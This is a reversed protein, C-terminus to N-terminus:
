KDDLSQIGSITAPGSLPKYISIIAAYNPSNPVVANANCFFRYNKGAVIQEAVAIPSYHVGVLGKLAEDFAAQADSSISTKYQTWGGPITM